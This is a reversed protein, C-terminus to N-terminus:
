LFRYLLTYAPTSVVAQWRERDVAYVVLYVPCSCSLPKIHCKKFLYQDHGLDSPRYEWCVQLSDDSRWKYDSEVM